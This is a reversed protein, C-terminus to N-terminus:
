NQKSVRVGDEDAFDAILFGGLPCFTRWLRFIGRGPWGRRKLFAWQFTLGAHHEIRRVGLRIRGEIDARIDFDRFVVAWRLLRVCM